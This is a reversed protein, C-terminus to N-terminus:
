RFEVITRTDFTCSYSADKICFSSSKPVSKKEPLFSDQSVMFAIVLSSTRIIRASAPPETTLHLGLRANTHPNRIKSSLLHSFCYWKSLKPADSTDRIQFGHVLKRLDFEDYRRCTEYSKVDFTSQFTSNYM